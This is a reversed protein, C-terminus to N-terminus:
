GGLCASFDNDCDAQSEIYASVCSAPASGSNLCDSYLQEAVQLCDVYRRHCGGGFGRPEIPFGSQRSAAREILRLVPQTRAQALEETIAGADILDQLYASIARRLPFLEQITSAPPFAAQLQSIAVSIRGSAELADTEPVTQLLGAAIRLAKGFPRADAEAPDAAALAEAKLEVQDLAAALDVQDVQNFSPAQAQAQAFPALALVLAAVATVKLM